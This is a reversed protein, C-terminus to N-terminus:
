VKVGNRKRQENSMGRSARGLARVQEIHEPKKLMGRVWGEGPCDWSRTNREGNNWWPRSFTHSGKKGGASSIEFSREPNEERWEPTFVGGRNKVQRAANRANERRGEEGKLMMNYAFLHKTNGTIKYRLLHVVRHEKHTLPVQEGDPDGGECKPVVHHWEYYLGEQLDRNRARHIIVDHWVQYKM